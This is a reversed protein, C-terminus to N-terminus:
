IETNENKAVYEKDKRDEEKMKEVDKRYQIERQRRKEILAQDAKVDKKKEDMDKVVENWRYYAKKLSFVPKFGNEFTETQRKMTKLYSDIFKCAGETNDKLDPLLKIAKNVFKTNYNKEERGIDPNLNYLKIYLDIFTSISYDQLIKLNSNPFSKSKSKATSKEKDEKTQELRTKDLRIQSPKEKIKKNNRSDEQVKKKIELLQKNKILSSDIRNALKYCIIKNNLENIEFLDLSVMYKMMEEVKITDIKFKYALIESDHELEFTINENSLNGAIIEVCAFYLGYGEIGFKMILKEIKADHLANTDHKFWRM